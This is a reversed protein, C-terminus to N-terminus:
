KEMKQKENIALIFNADPKRNYSLRSSVKIMINRQLFRLFKKLLTKM